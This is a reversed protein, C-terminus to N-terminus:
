KRRRQTYAARRARRAADHQARHLKHEEATFEDAKPRIPLLVRMPGPGYVEKVGHAIREVNLLLADGHRLEIEKRVIKAEDRIGCNQGYVRKMGAPAWVFRASSGFTWLVVRPDFPNANCAPIDDLHLKLAYEDNLSTGSLKTSQAYALVGGVSTYEVEALEGVEKAGAPYQARLYEAGARLVMRTVDHFFTEAPDDERLRETFISCRPQWERGAAGALYNEVNSLLAKAESQSAGELANRFVIVNAGPDLHLPKIELNRPRPLQRVAGPGAFVRSSPVFGKRKYRIFAPVDVSSGSAGGAGGSPPAREAALSRTRAAAATRKKRAAAATKEEDIVCATRKKRAAAATKEEDIVCGDDDDDSSCLTYPALFPSM